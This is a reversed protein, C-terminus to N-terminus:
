SSFPTEQLILLVSCLFVNAQLPLELLVVPLQDTFLFAARSVERGGLYYGTLHPSPPLAQQLISPNRENGTDGEPPTSCSSCWFFGWRPASPSLGLCAPATPRFFGGLIRWILLLGDEGLLLLGVDGESTLALFVPVHSETADGSVVSLGTM